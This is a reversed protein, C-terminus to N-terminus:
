HQHRGRAALRFHVLMCNTKLINVEFCSSWFAKLQCLFTAGSRVSDSSISAPLPTSETFRRRRALCDRYIRDCNCSGSRGSSVLELLRRIAAAIFGAFWYGGWLALLSITGWEVLLGKAQTQWSSNTFPSNSAWGDKETWGGCM